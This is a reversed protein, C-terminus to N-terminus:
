TQTIALRAKMARLRRMVKAPLGPPWGLERRVRKRESSSLAKIWGYPANTMELRKVGEPMPEAMRRFDSEWTTRYCVTPTANHARPLRERRITEWYVTDSIPSLQRPMAAWRALVRIAPRTLFFCNTDVHKRGDNKDDDFMYSGDPRHMSRNSTCVVAGMNRHLRVMREIHDPRYWNDADLFAVADYGLNFASLSGLIRPMNGIDAHAQPLVMHRAQWHDVVAKPFGDAVLLHDCATTQDMVSRHCQELIDDDEKYYPTIVAIKM